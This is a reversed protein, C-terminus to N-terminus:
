RPGVEIVALVIFLALALIFGLVIRGSVRNTRQPEQWPNREHHAM